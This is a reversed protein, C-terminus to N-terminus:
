FTEAHSSFYSPLADGTWGSFVQASSEFKEINQVHGCIVMFTGKTNISPKCLFTLLPACECIHFGCIVLMLQLNNGNEAASKHPLQNPM